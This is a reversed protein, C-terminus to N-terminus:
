RDNIFKNKGSMDTKVNGGRKKERDQLSMLRPKIVMKVPHWEKSLALNDNVLCNEKTAYRGSCYPCGCQRGNRKTISTEWEHGSECLWWVKKGSNPTVHYPTLDGNKRPHWQAALEPNIVALNYEDSAKKGSCYACGRNAARSSVEAEWEHGKQCKWWVKKNSFLTVDFPTLDDNKEQHWESALVPNLTALCNEKNVKRGSCYPCKDGRNSRKVIRTRWEHGKECKWWINHGASITVDYPTM